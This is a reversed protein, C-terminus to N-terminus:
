PSFTPDVTEIPFQPFIISFLDRAKWHFRVDYIMVTIAHTIHASTSRQAQKPQSRSDMPDFSHLYARHSHMQQSLTMEHFTHTRNIVPRRHFLGFFLFEWVCLLGSSLPACPLLSGTHTECLATGYTRGLTTLAHWHASPNDCRDHASRECRHWFM